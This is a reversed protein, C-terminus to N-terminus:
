DWRGSKIKVIGNVGGVIWLNGKSDVFVKEGMTFTTKDSALQFKRLGNHVLQAIPVATNANNIRYIGSGKLAFWMYNRADFYFEHNSAEARGTFIKIWSGSNYKAVIHVPTPDPFDPYKYFIGFLTGNKDVDFSLNQNYPM